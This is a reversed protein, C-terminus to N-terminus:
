DKDIPSMWVGNVIIFSKVRKVSLGTNTFSLDQSHTKIPNSNFLLNNLDKDVIEEATVSTSTLMLILIIRKM